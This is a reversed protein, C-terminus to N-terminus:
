DKKEATHKSRRTVDRFERYESWGDRFVLFVVSAGTVVFFLPLFLHYFMSDVMATKPDQALYFVTIEEGTRPAFFWHTKAKSRFEHTKGQLDTYTILPRGGFGGGGWLPKDIIGNVVVSQSRFLCYSYVKYASPLMLLLGIMLTFGKTFMNGIIQSHMAMGGYYSHKESSSTILRNSFTEMQPIHKFGPERDRALLPAPCCDLLHFGSAPIICLFPDNSGGTTKQSICQVPSVTGSCQNHM